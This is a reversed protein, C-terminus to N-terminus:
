SKLKWRKKAEPQPRRIDSARRSHADSAAVAAFTTPELGCDLVYAFTLRLMRMDPDFRSLSWPHWILSVYPLDLAM